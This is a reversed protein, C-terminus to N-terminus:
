VKFHVMAKIGLCFTFGFKHFNCMCLIFYDKLFLTTCNIYSYCNIYKIYKHIKHIKIKGYKEQVNKANGYIEKTNM